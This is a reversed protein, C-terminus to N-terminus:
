AASEIPVLGVVQHGKFRGDDDPSISEIKTPITTADHVANSQCYAVSLVDGENIHALLESDERVLIYPQNPENSRIRFLYIGAIGDISFQVHYFTQADSQRGASEEQRSVAYAGMM